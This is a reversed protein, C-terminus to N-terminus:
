RATPRRPRWRTQREGCLPSAAGRKRKRGRRSALDGQELRRMMGLDGISDGIATLGEGINKPYGKGKGQGM